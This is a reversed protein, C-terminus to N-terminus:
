RSIADSHTLDYRTDSYELEELAHDGMDNLWDACYFNKPLKQVPPRESLRRSDRRPHPWNGHIRRSSGDVCLSLHVADIDRLWLSVAAARWGKKFITYAPPAGGEFDSEDSSM